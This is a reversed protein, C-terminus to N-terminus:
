GDGLINLGYYWYKYDASMGPYINAQAWALFGEGISDGAGLRAYFGYHELMSGTKASGLAVLGPGAHFIYWSGICDFEVFRTCSCSFLNVFVAEPLLAEIECNYISGAYGSPIKFTHGWPSSHSMLHVFEFGQAYQELLHDATTQAPDTFRAVDSYAANLGDSYDYWDDDNYALGRDPVGLGGNRYAHDKAFYALYLDLEQGFTMERADIRSVWVEPTIDGTHFDLIGDGDGDSWTGDTDMYYLDCPFEEHTSSGWAPEDMEFWPVPIAGILVAGTAGGAYADAISARVSAADGGTYVLEDVTWGDAALDDYWTALADDLPACLRDEVIVLVRGVATPSLSVAATERGSEVPSSQARGPNAEVWASYSLPERGQPDLWRPVTVEALSVTSLVLVLVATARRM